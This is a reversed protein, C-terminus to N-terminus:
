RCRRGGTRGEPRRGSPRRPRGARGRRSSSGEDGRKVGFCRGHLIGGAPRAERNTREHGSAARESEPPRTRRVPHRGDATRRTARFLVACRIKARKVSRANSPTGTWWSLMSEVAMWEHSFAALSLGSFGSSGRSLVCGPRMATLARSGLPRRRSLFMAHAVDAVAIGRCANADIFDLPASGSPTRRRRAGGGSRGRSRRGRASGGARERGAPRRRATNVAIRAQFM